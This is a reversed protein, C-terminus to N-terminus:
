ENEGQKPEEVPKELAEAAEKEKQEKEKAVAAENKYYNKIEQQHQKAEARSKKTEAKEERITQKDVYIMFVAGAENEDLNDPPVMNKGNTWGIRNKSEYNHEYGYCGMKGHSYVGLAIAFDTVQMKHAKKNTSGGFTNTDTYWHVNSVTANPKFNYGEKLAQVFEDFSMQDKDYLFYKYVDAGATALIKKSILGYIGTGKGNETRERGIIFEIPEIKFFAVQGKEFVQGDRFKVYKDKIVLPYYLDGGNLVDVSFYLGTSEDKQVEVDKKKITQPVAFMDIVTPAWEYKINAKFGRLFEKFGM